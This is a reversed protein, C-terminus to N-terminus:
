SGERSNSRLFENFFNAARMREGEGKDGGTLPPSAQPIATFERETVPPSASPIATFGMGM